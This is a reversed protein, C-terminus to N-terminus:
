GSSTAGVLPSKSRGSLEGISLGGCGSTAGASVGAGGSQARASQNEPADHSLAGCSRLSGPPFARRRQQRGGSWRAISGRLRWKSRSLSARTDADAELAHLAGFMSSYQMGLAPDADLRALRHIAVSARQRDLEAARDLRPVFVESVFRRHRLGLGEGLPPAFRLVSFGLLASVLSGGLV